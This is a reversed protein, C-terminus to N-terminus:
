AELGAANTCGNFRAVSLLKNMLDDVDQQVGDPFTRANGPLMPVYLPVTM